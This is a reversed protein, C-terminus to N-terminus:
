HPICSESEPDINIVLKVDELYKTNIWQVVLNRKTNITFYNGTERGQINLKSSLVLNAYYSM